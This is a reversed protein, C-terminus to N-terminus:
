SKIQTYLEDIFDTATTTLFDDALNRKMEILEHLTEDFSRVSPKSYTDTLTLFHINVNKEQGIRYVRDTAQNEIAPNWWRGYHIVHNAMVLNLGVGASRPSLILVFKKDDNDFNHILADRKDISVSGNIIDVKTSFHSEILTKLLLQM